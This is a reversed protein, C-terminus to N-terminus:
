SNENNYISFLDGQPNQDNLFPDLNEDYFYGYMEPNEMFHKCQQVESKYTLGGLIMLVIVLLLVWEQMTPKKFLKQLNQKTLGVNKKTVQNCENCTEDKSEWKEKFTPKKKIEDM